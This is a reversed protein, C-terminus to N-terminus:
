LRLVTPVPLESSLLHSNVLTVVTLSRVNKSEPAGLLAGKYGPVGLSPSSPLHSSLRGGLFGPSPLPLALSPWCLASARWSDPSATWPLLGPLRTPFPLTPPCRFGQNGCSWNLALAPCLWLSGYRTPLGLPLPSDTRDGDKRVKGNRNHIRFPITPSNLLLLFENEFMKKKLREIARSQGKNAKQLPCLACATRRASPSWKDGQLEVYLM